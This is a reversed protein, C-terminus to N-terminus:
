VYPQEPILTLVACALAAYAQSFIDVFAIASDTGQSCLPSVEAQHLNSDPNHHTSKFTDTLPLLRSDEQLESGLDIGNMSGYLRNIM